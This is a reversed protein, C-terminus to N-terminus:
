KKVLNSKFKKILSKTYEDDFDFVEKCLFKFKVIAMKRVGREYKSYISQSTHIKKNESALMLSAVGEQTMKMSRRTNRMWTCVEPLHVEEQVEEQPAEQPAEQPEEFTCKFHEQISDPSISLAFDLADEIRKAVYGHNKIKFVVIQMTKGRTTKSKHDQTIHELIVLCLVCYGM